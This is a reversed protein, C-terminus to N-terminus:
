KYSYYFSNNNENTEPIEKLYDIKFIVREGSRFNAPNFTIDVYKKEGSGFIQPMYVSASANGGIATKHDAWLVAKKAGYAAGKNKVTVRFKGKSPMQQVKVITFDPKPSTKEKIKLESGISNIQRQPTDKTKISPAKCSWGGNEYVAIKGIPCRPKDANSPAASVNTVIITSALLTIIKKTNFM